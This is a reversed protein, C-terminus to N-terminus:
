AVFRIALIGESSVTGKQIGMLINNELKQVDEDVTPIIVALMKRYKFDYM